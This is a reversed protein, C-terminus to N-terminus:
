ADAIEGLAQLVSEPFFGPGTFWGRDILTRMLADLLAWARASRESARVLAMLFAFREGCTEMVMMEAIAEEVFRRAEPTQGGRDGNTEIM